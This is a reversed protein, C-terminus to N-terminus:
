QTESIRNVILDVTLFLVTYFYIAVALLPSFIYNHFICTQECFSYSYKSANRSTDCSIRLGLGIWFIRFKLGYM